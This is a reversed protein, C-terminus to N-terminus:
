GKLAWYLGGQAGHGALEDGREELFDHVGLAAGKWGGAEYDDFVIRGGGAIRPWLERACYAVSARLDCDVFALCFPGALGPLTNEFYGAVPTVVGSLGLAALKRELYSLSTSTFAGDGADTLGAEREAALEGPEFGAFSDCAYVRRGPAAARLALAMHVASGGRSTGCEVVDGGVALAARLQGLLAQVRNPDLNTEYNVASTRYLAPFALLARDLLGPPLM